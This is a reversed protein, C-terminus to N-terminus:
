RKILRNIEESVAAPQELTSLHGCDEVVSLRAGPIERAMQEHYEVPCLQDEAGCLVLTPCDITALTAVSDPRDKLLMSQRRFVEPGLEMAMDLVLDLLAQDDRKSAALYKPKMREIALERLGGHLAFEIEAFREAQREDKEARPNTDLLALHTVRDPAQRWIEFALIGGMSLGICAFRPPAAALVQRAMDAVSDAHRTDAHTAAVDLAEVQPAFLREDCMMGPLFLAATTPM